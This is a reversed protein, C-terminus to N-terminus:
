DDNSVHMTVPSLFVRRKEFGAWVIQREEDAIEARALREADERASPRRAM